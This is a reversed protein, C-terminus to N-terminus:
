DHTTLLPLRHFRLALFQHAGVLYTCTRKRVLCTRKSVLARRAAELNSEYSGSNAPDNQLLNQQKRRYADYDLRM